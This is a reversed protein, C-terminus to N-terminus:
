VSFEDYQHFLSNYSPPQDELYLEPADSATPVSPENNTISENRRDRRVVNGSEQEKRMEKRAYYLALLIIFCIYASIVGIGLIRTSTQTTTEEISRTTQAETPTIATSLQSRFREYDFLEKAEQYEGWSHFIEGNWYVNGTTKDFSTVFM